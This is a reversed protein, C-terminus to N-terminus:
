PHKDEYNNEINACKLMKDYGDTTLYVTVEPVISACRKNNLIDDICVSVIIKYIFYTGVQIFVTNRIYTNLLYCSM